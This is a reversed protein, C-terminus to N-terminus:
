RSHDQHNPTITRHFDTLRSLCIKIVQGCITRINRFYHRKKPVQWMQNSLHKEIGISDPERHRAVMENRADTTTAGVHRRACPPQQSLRMISETDAYIFGDGALKAPSPNKKKQTFIQRLFHRGFFGFCL